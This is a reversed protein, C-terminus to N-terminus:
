IQQSFLVKQALLAQVPYQSHIVLAAAAEAWGGGSNYAYVGLQGYSAQGMGTSKNTSNDETYGAYATGTTPESRVSNGSANGDPLRLNASAGATVFPYSDAQVSGVSIFTLVVFALFVEARYKLM